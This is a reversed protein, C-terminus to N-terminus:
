DLTGHVSTAGQWVMWAGEKLREHQTPLKQSEDRVNGGHRAWWHEFEQRKAFLVARHKALMEKEERSLKLHHSLLKSYIERAARAVAENAYPGFRECRTEDWFFWGEDEPFVPDKVDQNSM